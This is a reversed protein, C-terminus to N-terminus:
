NLTSQASIKMLRVVRRADKGDITQYYDTFSSLDQKGFGLHLMRQQEIHAYVLQSAGVFFLLYSFTLDIKSLYSKHLVPTPVGAILAMLTTVSLTGGIRQAEMLADDACFHGREVKQALMKIQVNNNLDQMRAQTIQELYVDLSGSAFAEDLTAKHCKAGLKTEVVRRLQDLLAKDISSRTALAQRVQADAPIREIIMGLGRESIEAGENLTMTSVVESTGTEILADTVATPLATRKAISLAHGEGKANIVTVLDAETLVESTSLIEEFVQPNDSQALSMALGKNLHRNQALQRSVKRCIQDSVEHILRTTINSFLAVEIDTPAAEHSDFLNVVQELLEDRAQPSRDASLSILRESQMM